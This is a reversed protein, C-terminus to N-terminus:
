LLSTPPPRLIRGSFYPTKESREFMRQRGELPIKESREFMGRRGGLPIKESREFM